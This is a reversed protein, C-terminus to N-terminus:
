ELLLMKNPQRLCVSDLLMIVETMALYLSPKIPIGDFIRYFVAAFLYIIMNYYIIAYCDLSKRGHNETCGFLTIPLSLWKFILYLNPSVASEAM